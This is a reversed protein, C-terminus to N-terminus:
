MLGSRLLRISADGSRYSCVPLLRYFISVTGAIQVKDRTADRTGAKLRSCRRLSDSNPLTPWTGLPPFMSSEFRNTSQLEWDQSLFCRIFSKEFAENGGSSM